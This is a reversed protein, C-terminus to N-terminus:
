QSAASARAKLKFKYKQQTSAAKLLDHENRVFDYFESCAMHFNIIIMLESKVLETSLLNRNDSWLQNMISFVRECFANSVPISLVFSVINFLQINDDPMSSFFKVWREAVNATLAVLAPRVVRLLCFEDYLKDM